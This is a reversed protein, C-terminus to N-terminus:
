AWESGDLPVATSVLRDWAAQRSEQLEREALRWHTRGRNSDTRM